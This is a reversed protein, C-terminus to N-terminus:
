VGGGLRSWPELDQRAKGPDLVLGSGAAGRAGVGMLIGGVVMLGMGLLVRVMSAQMGRGFEEHRQQARDWFNPDGPRPDNRGGIEPGLFFNSVFVLIGVAIFAM